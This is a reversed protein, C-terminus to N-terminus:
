LTADIPRFIYVDDVICDDNICNYIAITGDGELMFDEYEHEEQWNMREACQPCKM